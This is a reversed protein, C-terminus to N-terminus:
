GAISISSERDEGLEWHPLPKFSTFETPTGETRIVRNDAESAGVLVYPRPLNRMGLMLREFEGEIATLEREDTCTRALPM